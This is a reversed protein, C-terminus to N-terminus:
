EHQGSDSSDENASVFGGADLAALKLASNPLGTM